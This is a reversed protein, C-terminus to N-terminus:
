LLYERDGELSLICLEKFEMMRTTKITYIKQM